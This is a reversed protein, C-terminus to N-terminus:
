RLSGEDARPSPSGPEDELDSWDEHAELDWFSLCAWCCV